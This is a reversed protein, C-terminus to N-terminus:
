ENKKEKTEILQKEISSISINSLEKTITENLKEVLENTFDAFNKSINCNSDGGSLWTVNIFNFNITKVLENLNLDNQAFIYGGFRGDKKNIIGKEVFISMLKRVQVPNANINKALETSSVYDKKHWLYTLAHLSIVFDSFCFKNYTINKM